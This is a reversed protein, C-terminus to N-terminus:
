SDVRNINLRTIKSIQTATLNLAYLKVIERFKARSIRSRYLIEISM